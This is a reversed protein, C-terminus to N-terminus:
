GNLIFDAGPTLRVRLKTKITDLFLRISIALMRIDRVDLQIEELFILM